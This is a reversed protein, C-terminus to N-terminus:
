EAKFWVHVRMDVEVAVGDLYTPTFLWQQVAAIAAGAFDQDAPAIARVRNVRGDTGIRCELELVAGDTRHEPYRPKVDRIKTPPEICGGTPSQDCASPARV